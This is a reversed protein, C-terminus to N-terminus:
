SSYLIEQLFVAQTARTAAGALGCSPAKSVSGPPFVCLFVSLGLCVYIRIRTTTAEKIEPGAALYKTPILIGLQRGGRRAGKERHTTKFQCVQFPFNCQKAMEVFKTQVSLERSNEM